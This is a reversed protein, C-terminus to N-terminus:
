LRVHSSYSPMDQRGETALFRSWLLTDLRKLDVEIPFTLLYEGKQALDFEVQSVLKFNSKEFMQVICFPNCRLQYDYLAVSPGPWFGIWRKLVRLFSSRNFLSSTIEAHYVTSRQLFPLIRSAVDSLPAKISFM